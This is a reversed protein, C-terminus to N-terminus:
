VETAKARRQAEMVLYGRIAPTLSEWWKVTEAPARVRAPSSVEGATLPRTGTTVALAAAQTGGPKSGGHRGKNTM